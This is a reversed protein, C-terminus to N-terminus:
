IALQRQLEAQAKGAAERSTYTGTEAQATLRLTVSVDPPSIAQTREGALVHAEIEGRHL